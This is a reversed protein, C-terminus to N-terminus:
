TYVNNNMVESTGSGGSMAWLRAILSQTSILTICVNFYVFRYAFFLIFKLYM